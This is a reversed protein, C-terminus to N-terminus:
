GVMEIESEGEKKTVLIQTPFLDKLEQIHTIMIIKAFDKRISNITKVLDERGAVDLTGFGEDMALFKLHIGSRSALFKSLAVRIAFNIRFAEGGSFMEYDREGFSDTIKIELTEILEEAVSKKFKQTLFQLSMQNDSVKSLIENANEQIAPIAQEIIMAQIGKKGFAETLEGLIIIEKAINKIKGEKAKLDEKQRQKEKLAQAQAGIKGELELLQPKRKELDEQLAQWDPLIKAMKEIELALEKGDKIIKKSKERKGDLNEGIKLNLKKLNIINIKAMELNRKQEEINKLSQIETKIKELNEPKFKLKQFAKQLDKKGPLFNKKFDNELGFIIKEQETKKLPRLCTPCFAIQCLKQIKNKLEQEKHNLVILSERLRQWKEREKEMKEREDRLQNLRSFKKDIVLKNKSIEQYNQIEKLNEEKEKALRKIELFIEELYERLNNRKEEALDKEKKQRELKQFKKELIAIEKQLKEKFSKIKQYEDELGEKETLQWKLDDIQFNLAQNENELIKLKEKAREELKQWNGLGLIEGLIEKREAPTKITFEDAKGQRLYSTNVFIEYPLQLTEIIKEQTLRLTAESITKWSSDSQIQFELTSIGKKKRDRRRFIRYIQNEHEFIFDVWMENAGQHILDDSFQSRTKEWVAWTLAELISSKGAGNEGLIVALDFQSFDLPKPSQYSLFNHLTIKLPIM